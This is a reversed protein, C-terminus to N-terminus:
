RLEGGFRQSLEKVIREVARGVEADTLTRDIRQFELRFAVSVKGDPVGRGEYRDFVTVAQLSAGGTKRIWEVVDGAAVSRDLLVALDRRARPHRSLERYRGPAPKARALAALDLVLLAAPVEIGFAAATEPHLEGLAAVPEGGVQLEGSAGPHLFPEGSEPRFSADFGLEALVELAAGKARFFIPVDRREWLSGTRADTWLAAAEEREDPLEGGGREHFGRGVEFLRLNEAQRALNQAAARLLSPVLTPRLLSEGAQIPNEIEVTARRPDDPALRLGDLDAPRVAPFTMLEVLGAARLADRARERLGRAPPLEAGTAAGAPLTPEIRDYGHIRAVEEILDEEIALDARWSPPRCRLAAGAPAPDSAVDVRALLARIEDAGLATGLLRNAREPRLAIEAARPLARGRAEVAGRAVRGGALEALLRAARDAARAVGEPDVGREFRYSADSHLGLRRATRRVRSPHFQASEILIERTEARVESDRGGMVGAIALAREADAILLDGAALAREAGDLTAIREGPRAARVRVEGGRVARLDFAHLPQGLELMVLNTADVVNNISRLGAAALRERLWAPSVDVRVDTVVRAVYLPCGEADEVAVRVRGAAEEGGEPPECPPLRLEGGYHARVERALGLLSVWDGRNPTIAVDLVVDGARLAEAAPAGPRAAADLVLIGESEGSLGLERASCIMGDSVVGRIRSRKIRTGDPLEAGHPAVVVKQGGAVNPAGCVIEVPEGGGLDVRCLSLRDAGPHPKRELVHGVVLGALEPGTRVVDEIELGGLTLREVFADLPERGPWPLEIWEALWGLPVRV